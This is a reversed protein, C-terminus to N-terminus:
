VWVKSSSWSGLFGLLLSLGSARKEGCAPKVMGELLSTYHSGWVCLCAAGFRGLINLATAPALVTLAEITILM